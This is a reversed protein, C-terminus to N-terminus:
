KVCHHLNLFTNSLNQNFRNLSFQGWREGREVVNYESREVVIREDREVVKLDNRQNREVM